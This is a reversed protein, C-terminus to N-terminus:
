ERLIQIFLLYIRKIHNKINNKQKIYNIKNENKLLLSTNQILNEKKKEEKKLNFQVYKQQIYASSSLYITSSLKLTSM